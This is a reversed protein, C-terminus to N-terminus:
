RVNHALSSGLAIGYIRHHTAVAQEESLSAIFDIITRTLAKIGEIEKAPLAPLLERVSIPFLDPNAEGNTGALYFADFLERIIRRQGNQQMALAPNKIVYHWTLQKLMFIEARRRKDITIQFRSDHQELQVATVFDRILTSTVTRLRIRDEQTPIYRKRIPITEILADFAGRLYVEDMNAPLKEKRRYFVEAYFRAREDSDVVLRDLPIVGARYFDDLDHVSYTVDDSWDMLEAEISKRQPAPGLERAWNFLDAESEYVGWKDLKTSNEGRKWPYKLIANLTARTLNLGNDGSGMALRTVIRFSQANGEFGDDLGKEVAIGDLEKEAVHGFPPHGIDHALCSAEVVDPDIDPSTASNSNTEQFERFLKEAIRRGM